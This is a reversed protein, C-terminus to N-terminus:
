MRLQFITSVDTPITTYTELASAIFLGTDTASYITSSLSSSSFM